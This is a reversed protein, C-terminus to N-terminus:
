YEPRTYRYFILTGVFIIITIIVAIASAYGLRFYLFANRYLLPALLLGSENIGGEKGFLVFAEDFLNFTGITSMTIAFFIIPRMIPIVIRWFRQWFNAGEVISSEIIEQPIMQLGALQIVMNFGTWRWLVVLNILPIALRPNTKINFMQIGFKSLVLGVLGYQPDFIFLFILGAVMMSFVVPLFMSTRFFTRLKLKMNLLVAFFLALFTMLPVNIIWLYVNNRFANWFSADRFLLKTYNGLGILHGPTVGKWNTLSLYISFGIPFVSFLFFLIYVPALFYYPVLKEKQFRKKLSGQQHQM